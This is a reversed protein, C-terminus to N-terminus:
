RKAMESCVEPSVGPLGLGVEARDGLRALLRKLTIHDEAMCAFTAYVNLWDVDGDLAMGDEFAHRMVKWSAKTGGFFNTEPYGRRVRYYLTAYLTTGEVSQTRMVADRVVKDVKEFSGGWQPLAFNLRTEYIRLDLPFRRTGEEFLSDMVQAPQGTVGAISMASQYWLPSEKGKEGGAKLAALAKAHDQEFLKMAEPSVTSAYGTGRHNWASARWAESEFAPRLKSDPFQERWKATLADFRARDQVILPLKADFASGVAQMMWRGNGGAAQLALFEDHMREIKAIDGADIAKQIEMNAREIDLRKYAVPAGFARKGPPTNSDWWQANAPSLPGLAVMALLAYGLRCPIRIRPDRM